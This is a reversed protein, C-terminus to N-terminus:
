RGHNGKSKYLKQCIGVVEDCMKTQFNGIQCLKVDIELQDSLWKYAAGQAKKKSCDDRFMKETWLPDFAAHARQRAARTEKNAM